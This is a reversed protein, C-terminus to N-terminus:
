NAILGALVLGLVGTIAIVVLSYQTTRRLVDSESGSLGVTSCGVMVKAPAFVSGVAAGANHLALALPVFLSLKEAVQLQLAGMLVNANTNSGTMFAGLAGIFPAVLPFLRGALAAMAAALESVMGSAQMTIAMAMMTLIGLTSQMGSKLVGARIKAGSGPPLSGRATALLVAIGAAYVLLAGPHGFVSIAQTKGAALITGDALSRAPIDFAIKWRSLLTSLAPVFNVVMIIAILVVYPLTRMLAFGGTAQEIKGQQTRRRRYLAWIGGVALGGLAGLMAAINVLGIRVAVYQVISMTLGMSLMPGLGRGVNGKGAAMGLVIVGVVLCVFGLIAAMWPAILAGELGTASVLAEYSAGLSGFSISWSHGMSTIIVASPAPLGMSVLIPAVVAVPVGYGGVGQLFSSFGYALLLVQLTRGPALRQLMESMAALTGDAETVRFFLLAGWIIYLVYLARFLGEIQAWLLVRPGAGFRLAAILLAAAWGAAGAKAGSWRYKVMLLLIIVLPISALLTNM